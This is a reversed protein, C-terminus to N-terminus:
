HNKSVFCIIIHNSILSMPMPGSYLLLFIFLLRFLYALSFYLFINRFHYLGEHKSLNYIERTKFYTGLCLGAIAISYLIEIDVM